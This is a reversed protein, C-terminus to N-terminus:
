VLRSKRKAPFGCWAQCLRDRGWSGSGSADAPRPMRHRADLFLPRRNPAPRRTGADPETGTGPWQATRRQAPRQSTAPQLVLQGRTCVLRGPRDQRSTRHDLDEVGRRGPDGSWPGPRSFRGRRERSGGARLCCDGSLVRRLDPVEGVHVPVEGVVGGSIGPEEDADHVGGVDANEARPLVQVAGVRADAVLCVGEDAFGQM